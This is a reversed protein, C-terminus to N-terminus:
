ELTLVKKFGTIENQNFSETIEIKKKNTNEDTKMMQELKIKQAESTKNLLM